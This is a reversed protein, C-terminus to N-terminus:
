TSGLAPSRDPAKKKTRGALELALNLVPEALQSVLGFRLAEEASFFAATTFLEIARTRGILRPLRQTGGWGTIIGLRTGPHAFSAKPSALRIDCALALDLGGGICYGNIAAITIQRASAIQQCLGQGLKAFSLAESPTLQTLENINAGSAFANESGTFVLSQINGRPLLHSLITQLEELTSLSLPNREAPRNFRIIVTREHFETLVAPSELPM